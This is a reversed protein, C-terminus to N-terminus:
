RLKDDYRKERVFLLSPQRGSLEKHEDELRRIWQWQLAIENSSGSIKRTDKADDNPVQFSEKM